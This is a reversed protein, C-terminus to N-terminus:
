SNRLPYDPDQRPDTARWKRVDQSTDCPRTGILTGLVHGLVLLAIFIIVLPWPGHTVVLLTCFISGLTVVFFLQKLGFKLLHPESQRAPPDFPASM